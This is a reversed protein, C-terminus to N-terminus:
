PTYPISWVHGHFGRSGAMIDDGLLLNGSGDVYMGLPFHFGVLGSPPYGPDVKRLCMTTCDEMYGSAAWGQPLQGQTAYVVSAGTSPNFRYITGSAAGSAVAVYVAGHSADTAVSLAFSVYPLNLPQAFCPVFPAASACGSIGKIVTLGKNEPLYLDDGLIGISGNIGRGDSTIGVVDVAVANPDGRPGKVRYIFGNKLGAAYINGDRGLAVGVLKDNALGAGPGLLTPNSVTETAPDFNLRWLGPSKVAADPVYVFNGNPDFVPQGPSGTAGQPDCTSPNTAFVGPDDPAPDLRCLGQTHDAVWYHGGLTGPMWVVGDPATSGWAVMTAPKALSPPPTIEAPTGPSGLADLCGTTPQPAAPDCQVTAGAAGAVKWLKGQGVPPPL